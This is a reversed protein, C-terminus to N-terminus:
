RTNRHGNRSFRLITRLPLVKEEVMDQLFLRVRGRYFREILQKALGAGIGLPRITTEYVYPKVSPQHRVYGRKELRRLITRVSSYSLPHNSVLANQVQRGTASGHKWILRLMELQLQSPSNSKM